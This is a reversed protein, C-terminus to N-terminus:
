EECDGLIYPRSMNMSTSQRSVIGLPRLYSQDRVSSDIEEKCIVGLVRLVRGGFIIRPDGTVDLKTMPCDANVLHQLYLEHSRTEVNVEMTRFKFIKFPRGRYGLREQCFFLPGRSVLKIWAAIVIFVILWCPMSVLICTVDLLRKWWPLENTETIAIGGTHSFNRWEDCNPSLPSVLPALQQASGKRLLSSL